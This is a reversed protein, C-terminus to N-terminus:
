PISGLVDWCSAQGQWAVHRCSGEGKCHTPNGLQVASGQELPTAEGGRPATHHAKAWTKWGSRSVASSPVLEVDGAVLVEASM